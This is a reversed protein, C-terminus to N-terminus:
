YVVASVKGLGDLDTAKGTPAWVKVDHDLGSTALMCSTPHPELVNVQSSNFFYPGLLKKSSPIVM